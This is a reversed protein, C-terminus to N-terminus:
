ECSGQDVPAGAQVIMDGVLHGLQVVSQVMQLVDVHSSVVTLAGDTCM